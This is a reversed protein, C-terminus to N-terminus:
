VDLFRSVALASGIAGVIAGVVLVFIGTYLVESSSWSFLKLLAVDSDRISRQAFPSGIRVVAFAIGAGLLGQLMGELMFPLRIFWNTAGVLKMVAVERRRAFIAMRITNLILLVAAVLLIGAFVLIWRQTNDFFALWGQLAKRPLSIRYVGARKAYRDALAESQDAIKPKVKFSTPLQSPDTVAELYEPQNRFMIQFEQWAENKDIHDVSAIEPANNLERELAQIEPLTAEPKMFVAFAVGGRFQVGANRVAQRMVLGSGVLALSVAVTLVTAVTMLANRWLNSFGERVAYTPRVAM